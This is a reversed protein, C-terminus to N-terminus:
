QGVTCRRNLRLPAVSLTQTRSVRDFRDGDFHERLALEAALRDRHADDITREFLRRSM